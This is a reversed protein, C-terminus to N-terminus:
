KKSEEITVKRYDKFLKTLELTSKRARGGAAKNGEANAQSEKQFTAIEASIQELLENM